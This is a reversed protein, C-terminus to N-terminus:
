QDELQLQPSQQRQLYKQLKQGEEKLRDAFRLTKLSSECSSMGPSITAILFTRCEEGIFSDRLITTLNNGRFPIHAGNRGFARVCEKLALLSKNIETVEIRTQKDSCSMIAAKDCGALDILTFKGHINEFVDDKRLLIQFVAHSRSSNSNISSKTSARATTCKQILQLLQDASEVIEEALAVIKVENNYGELVRLKIKNELLDFVEGCYIEFFSASVVLNLHRYKPSELFNFVDEATMAYIGKKSDESIGGVMTHTKGSGPRGYVFCTAMGGEFVTQVLPQATFKHVLENCCTEDFAYDFKFTRNELYTGRNMKFKPYHLLIEDKRPVSIVDVDSTALERENFPRKRVCVTIRHNIVPDSEQLPHYITSERYDRILSRIDWNPDEVEAVESLEAIGSQREESFNHWPQIMKELLLGKRRPATGLSPQPRHQQKEQRTHQQPLREVPLGYAERHEDMNQKVTLHKQLHQVLQQQQTELQQKIDHRQEEIQKEMKQQHLATQVQNENRFYQEQQSHVQTGMHRLTVAKSKFEHTGAIPAVNKRRYTEVDARGGNGNPAGSVSVDETITKLIHEYKSLSAHLVAELRNEIDRICTDMKKELKEQNSEIMRQIVKIKADLTELNVLVGEQSADTKAKSAFSVLNDM